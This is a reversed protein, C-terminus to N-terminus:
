KTSYSMAVTNLAASTNDTDAIGAVICFGIGAAYADGVNDKYMFGGNAPVMENRSFTFDVNLKRSAIACEALRSLSIQFPRTVAFWPMSTNSGGSDGVAAACSTVSADAM